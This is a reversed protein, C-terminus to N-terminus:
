KAGICYLADAARLYIHGGAVAPSADCRTDLAGKGVPAFDGSPDASCILMGGETLPLYLKGDAVMPSGYGSGERMDKEKVLKGTKADLCTLYSEFYHFVHKGDTTMSAGDSFKEVNDSKKHTWLTEGTALSAGIIGCREGAVVLVDGVVLPSPGYAYEVGETILDKDWITAGKEADLVMVQPDSAVIVVYRDGSKALMPSAWTKGKRATKWVEKGDALSYAAVFSSEGQFSVIVNGGWILLSSCQGFANEGPAGIVTQWLEKGTELDAAVLQGNSFLAAVRKGDTAPTAGALLLEDWQRDQSNAEYDAAAKEGKSVVCTWLIKGTAAELGYIERKEKNAGITVVRNGWVVASAWGKLPLATKWTITKGDKANWETALKAAGSNGSGDPGRFVASQKEGGDPLAGAAAMRATTTVVAAAVAAAVGTTLGSGVQVMEAEKHGQKEGDQLV